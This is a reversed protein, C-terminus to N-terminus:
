GGKKDTWNILLDIALRIWILAYIVWILGAAFEIIEEDMMATRGEMAPDLGLERGGGM